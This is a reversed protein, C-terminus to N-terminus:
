SSQAKARRVAAAQQMQADGRARHRMWTLVHPKTTPNEPPQPNSLHQTTGPFAHPRNPQADAATQSGDAPKGTVTLYALGPSIGLRQAAEAYSCGADLYAAIQERTAV